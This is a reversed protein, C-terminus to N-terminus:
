ADSKGYLVLSLSELSAEITRRQAELSALLTDAAQLRLELAAQQENIRDTLIDIRSNLSIETRDNQDLELKIAGTVPDSISEFTEVLGGLQTGSVFEFGAAITSEGLADFVAADFSLSGDRDLTLGLDSLSDVTGTGNFNVLQRLAASSRQILSSGTLLGASEGIQTDLFSVYSNYASVLSNLATSLNSRNSRLSVDITEGTDTTDLITFTVGAVVDNITSTTKSVSVGNLKFVTNAGQNTATVLATAAGDPDDVLSLTTAGPSTATLSLYNPNSGTGTTFISATVGLGLANIASRLGNLNNTEPTLAITRVESGITLRVTGTSSVPTSDSTAYGSLSTESAAAALSTVDSITYTAATTATVSGISVKASNSSSGSIGRDDGVSKLNALSATFSSAVGSLTTTLTQRQLLISKDNQLSNLPLAAIQQARSLIAQFDESYSSVGVFTIPAIGSM